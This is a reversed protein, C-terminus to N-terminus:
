RTNIACTVTSRCCLHCLWVFDFARSSGMAVHLDVTISAHKNIVLDLINRCCRFHPMVADLRAPVLEPNKKDRKVWGALQRLSPSKTCRQGPWGTSKIAGHGEASHYRASPRSSNMEIQRVCIGSSSPLTPSRESPHVSQQAAVSVKKKSVHLLPSPFLPSEGSAHWYSCRGRHMCLLSLTLTGLSVWFHSCSSQTATEPESRIAGFLCSWDRTSAYVVPNEWVDIKYGTGEAAACVAGLPTLSLALKQTTKRLKFVVDYWLINEM